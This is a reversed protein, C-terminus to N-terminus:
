SVTACSRYCPQPDTTLNEFNSANSCGHSVLDAGGQLKAAAVLEQTLKARGQSTPPYLDNPFRFVLGKFMHDKRCFDLIDDFETCGISIPCVGRFPLKTTWKENCIQQQKSKVRQQLVQTTSEATNTDAPHGAPASPPGLLACDAAL